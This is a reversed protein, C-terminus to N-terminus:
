VVVAVVVVVVVVVVTIIDLNDGPRRDGEIIRTHGQRREVAHQLRTM